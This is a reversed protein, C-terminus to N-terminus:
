CKRVIHSVYGYLNALIDRIAQLGHAGLTPIGYGCGGSRLHERTMLM